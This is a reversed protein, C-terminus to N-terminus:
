KFYNELYIPITDIFQVNNKNILDIKQQCTKITLSQNIIVFLIKPSNFREKYKELTDKIYSKINKENSIDDNNSLKTEIVIDQIFGETVLQIDNRKKDFAMSEYIVKTSFGRINLIRSLEYGILFQYVEEKLPRIKKTNKDRFIELFNMRLIDNFINTQLVEKVVNFLDDYEVNLIEKFHRIEDPYIHRQGVEIKALASRTIDCGRVQLKASLEEQTIKRKERISRIKNGIKKEYLADM